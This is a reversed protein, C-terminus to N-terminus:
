YTPGTHEMSLQEAASPSREALDPALNCYALIYDWLVMKKYATLQLLTQQVSSMTAPKLTHSVSKAELDSRLDASFVLADTYKVVALYRKAQEIEQM